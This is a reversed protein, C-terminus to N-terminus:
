WKESCHEHDCHSHIKKICKVVFEWKLKQVYNRSQKSGDQVKCRCVAIVESLIIEDCLFEVSLKQGGVFSLTGNSLHPEKKNRYNLTIGM